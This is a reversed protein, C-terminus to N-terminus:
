FKNSFWDLINRSQREKTHEGNEAKLQNNLKSRELETKLEALEAKIAQLQESESIIDGNESKTQIEQFEHQIQEIEEYTPFDKLVKQIQIIASQADTTQEKLNEIQQSVATFSYAGLPSDLENTLSEIEQQQLFRDFQERLKDVKRDSKYIEEIRWSVSNIKDTLGAINQENVKQQSQLIGFSEQTQLEVDKRSPLSQLNEQILEIEQKNEALDIGYANVNKQLEPFASNLDALSLLSKELKALAERNLKSIEELNEVRNPEIPAPLAKVTDELWQIKNLIRQEMEALEELAKRSSNKDESRRNLVNVVMTGTLPVIAWLSSQKAELAFILGAASAAVLIYELKRLLKSRSM